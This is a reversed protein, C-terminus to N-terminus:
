PKTTQCANRINQIYETVKHDYPPYTFGRALAVKLSVERFLAAAEELANWCNAISDMRYTKRLRTGERESLYHFLYKNHKGISFRFGRMTGVYWSLMTLLQVRVVSEMHYAAYLLEKRCLGKAVYTACFWFENCCDEFCAVTPEQIWFAEDTPVPPRTIIGDKDLLIKLLKDSELYLSVEELPILTLDMKVGDTFLMLYSFWNGLEPPFLEMAEPKQMIVREGFVELWADGARFSEMETVLFSIDYDQFEDRPVNPNIRSGGMGVMRIRHDKEAVELVMRMM